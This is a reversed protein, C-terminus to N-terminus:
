TKVVLRLGSQLREGLHLRELVCMRRGCVPLGLYECRHCRRCHWGCGALGMGGAVAGARERGAVAGHLVVGHLVAGALDGSWVSAAFAQVVLLWPVAERSAPAGLDAQQSVEDRLAAAASAEGRLAEAMSDAAV